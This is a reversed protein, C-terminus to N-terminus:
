RKNRLMFGFILLSILLTVFASLFFSPINIWTSGLNVVISKSGLLFWEIIFLVIVIILLIRIRSIKM